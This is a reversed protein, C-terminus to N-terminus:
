TRAEGDDADDDDELDDELDDDDDELAADEAELELADIMRDFEVEIRGKRVDAWTLRGNDLEIGADDVTLLRGTVDDGAARSVTVLRGRARSWHRRETLPRDIGPSSVELVYPSGGMVNSADLAASIAKSAEAVRDMPVGGIRDPPLDVTVRLVRRRGAPTVSVDEVVLGVDAALPTALARVGDAQSSASM